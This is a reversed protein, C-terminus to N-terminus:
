LLLVLDAQLWSHGVNHLLLCLLLLLLLLLGVVVVAVAVVLHEVARIWLLYEFCLLYSPFLSKCNNNLECSMASLEGGCDRHSEGSEEAAAGTLVVAVVTDATAVTWLELSGGMLVM